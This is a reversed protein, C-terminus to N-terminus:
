YRNKYFYWFIFLIQLTLFHSIGLQCQWPVSATTAVNLHARGGRRGRGGVVRFRGDDVGPNVVVVALLDVRRGAVM